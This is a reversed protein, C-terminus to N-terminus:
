NGDLLKKLREDPAPRSEAPELTAFPRPEGLVALLERVVKGDAPAEFTKEVPRRGPAQVSVIVKELPTSHRGGSTAGFAGPEEATGPDCTFRLSPAREGRFLLAITATADPVASCFRAAGLADPLGATVDHVGIAPADEGGWLGLERVGLAPTTEIARGTVHLEYPYSACGALAFLVALLVRM